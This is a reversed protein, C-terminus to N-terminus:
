QSRPTRSTATSSYPTSSTFTSTLHLTRWRTSTTAQPPRPSDLPSRPNTSRNASTTVMSPKKMRATMTRTMRMTMGVVLWGIGGEWESGNEGIGYLGVVADESPLLAKRDPEGGCNEYGIKSTFVINQNSQITGFNLVTCPGVHFTPYEHGHWWFPTAYGLSPPLPTRAPNPHTQTPLFM